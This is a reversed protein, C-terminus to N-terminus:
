ESEATPLGAARSVSQIATISKPPFFSFTTLSLHRQLYILACRCSRHDLPFHQCAQALPPFALFILFAGLILLWRQFLLM